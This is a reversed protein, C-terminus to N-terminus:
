GRIQRWGWRAGIGGLVMPLVGLAILFKWYRASEASQSITEAIADAGTGYSVNISGTKLASLTLVAGLFAMIAGLFVLAVAFGAKLMPM